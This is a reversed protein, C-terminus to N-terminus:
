YKKIYLNVITQNLLRYAIEGFTTPGDIHNDIASNELSMHQYNLVCNCSLAPKDKVEKFLSRYDSVPKAFNYTAGKFVPSIMILSDDKIQAFSVNVKAGFDSCILPFRLDKKNEKLYSALNV